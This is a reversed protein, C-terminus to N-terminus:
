FIVRSRVSSCLPNLKLVCFVCVLRLKSVSNDSTSSMGHMSDSSWNTYQGEKKSGTFASNLMGNPGKSSMSPKSNNLISGDSRARKMLKSFFIYLKSLHFSPNTNIQLFVFTHIFDPYRIRLIFQDSFM